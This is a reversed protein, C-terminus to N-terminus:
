NPVALLTRYIWGERQDPGLVKVWQGRWALGTVQTQPPLIAMPAFGMGPGRRVHSNVQVQFSLPSIFPTEPYKVSAVQELPLAAGRNSLRHMVQDALDAAQAYNGAEYASTSTDLWDPIVETAEIPGVGLAIQYASEAEAIASAAQAPGTLTQIRVDIRLLREQNRMLEEERQELAAELERIRASSDLAELQLRAAAKDRADLQGELSVKDAELTRVRRELAVYSSPPILACGGLGTTIALLLPCVTSIRM